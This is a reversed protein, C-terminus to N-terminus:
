RKAPWAQRGHFVAVLELCGHRIRYPIIYPTQPV